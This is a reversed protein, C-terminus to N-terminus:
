REKLEVTKRRKEKKMEREKGEGMERREVEIERV